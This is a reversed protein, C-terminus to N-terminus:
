AAGAQRGRHIRAAARAARDSGLVDDYLAQLNHLMAAMGFRSRVSVYGSNAVARRRDPNTLYELLAASLAAPEDPPILLGLQPSTVIEPIGGVHSAVVPCGAAMAEIVVKGFPESRTPLAFVDFTRMFAPVDRRYGTFRVHEGLGLSEVLRRCEIEYATEDPPACGVIVLLADPVRALVESMATILTTVGKRPVIQGVFGVIPRSADLALEERRTEREGDYQALDVANYLTVTKAGLAQDARFVAATADSNCVIREAVQYGYPSQPNRVVNRVHQIYPVGASVAAQVISRRSASTNGHVLAIRESKLWRWHLPAELLFRHLEERTPRHIGRVMVPVNVERLRAPLEGEAPCMVVPRYRAPDLHTVVDLLSTSSGGHATSWSNVFLVTRAPTTSV